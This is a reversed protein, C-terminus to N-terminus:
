RKHCFQPSYHSKKKNKQSFQEESNKLLKNFSQENERM